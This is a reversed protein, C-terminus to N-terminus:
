DENYSKKRHLAWLWTLIQFKTVLKSLL